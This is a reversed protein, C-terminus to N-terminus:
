KNYKEIKKIALYYLLGTTFIQIFPFVFLVPQIASGMFLFAAIAGIFSLWASRIIGRYSIPFLLSNRWDKILLLLYVFYPTLFWIWIQYIPKSWLPDAIGEVVAQSAGGLGILMFFAFNVFLFGPILLLFINLKM